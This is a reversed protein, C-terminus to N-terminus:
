APGEPETTAAADKAKRYQYVQLGLVIAAVVVLPTWVVLVVQVVSAVVWRLMARQDGNGAAKAARFGAFVAFCWVVVAAIFVAMIALLVGGDISVTEALIM